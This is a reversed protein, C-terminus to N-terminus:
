RRPSHAAARVSKAWSETARSTENLDDNQIQGHEARLRRQHIMEMDALYSIGDLLEGCMGRFREGDPNGTPRECAATIEALRDPRLM